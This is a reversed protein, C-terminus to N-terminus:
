LYTRKGDVMFSYGDFTVTHNAAPAPNTHATARQWPVAALAALLVLLVAFRSRIRM